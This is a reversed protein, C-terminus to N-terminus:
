SKAGHSRLVEDVRENGTPYDAEEVNAGAELLAEIIAVHDVKTENIASWVAQGLVTGGYMNTVELPVKRDILLKVVDLHGGSAAYHFGNLGTNNGALPDVGKDLLFAADSTRGLMCAWTFAQAMPVKPEGAAVLLDMLALKHQDLLEELLSYNGADLHHVADRFLLQEKLKAWSAFGNERAIVLQADDLQISDSAAALSKEGAGHQRIRDLAEPRGARAHELLEEARTAYPDLNTSKLPAKINKMLAQWNEFGHVRAIFLQAEALSLEADPLKGLSGQVIAPLKEQTGRQGTYDNIRQIADSDGSQYVALVDQALNNYQELSNAKNVPGKSEGTMRLRHGDLDEVLMERSGWPYNRPPELIMAGSKKYEEHLADVDELFISIWMGPQGQGGECLFIQAEGRGVCGFDAPKGWDWEKEFGLKNVYYAISAAFDKVNLIPVAGSFENM